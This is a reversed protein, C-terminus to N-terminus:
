LYRSWKVQVGDLEAPIAPTSPTGQGGKTFTSPLDRLDIKTSGGM